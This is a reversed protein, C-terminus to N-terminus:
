EVEKVQEGVVDLHLVFLDRALGKTEIAISNNAEMQDKEYNNKGDWHLKGIEMDNESLTFNRDFDTESGELTEKAFYNIQVNMMDADSVVNLSVDDNYGDAEESTGELNLEILDEESEFTMQYDLSSENPDIIQKGKVDILISDSNEGIETTLERSVVVSDKIWITTTLGESLKLDSVSDKARSVDNEFNTLMNELKDLVKTLISQVEEETLHMTIKDAKLEEGNVKTKDSTSEFATDPIEKYILVGYEKLLYEKDEESFGKAQAEFLDTFNIETEK